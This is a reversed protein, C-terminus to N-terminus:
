ESLSAGSNAAVTWANRPQSGHAPRHDLWRAALSKVRRHVLEQGEATIFGAYSPWVFLFIMLEAALVSRALAVPDLRRRVAYLEVMETLPLMAGEPTARVSPFALEHAPHVLGAQQWDIWILSSGDFLLNETHCDGHGFCSEQRDTEALLAAPDDIISVALEAAAVGRWYSGAGRRDIGASPEVNRWWRSGSPFPIDHLAALDAALTLWIGHTWHVAPLLRHHPTLLLAISTADRHSDLLTPTLLPVIPAVDLYFACEREAAALDEGDAALTAKLVAPAGNRRVVRHVHAGSRSGILPEPVLTVDLSHALREIEPAVAAPNHNQPASM